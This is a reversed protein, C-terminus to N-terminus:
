SVQNKAGCEGDPSKAVLMIDRVVVGRL